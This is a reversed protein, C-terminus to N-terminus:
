RMRKHLTITGTRNEHTYEVRDMMKMVLFIGLGGEKRMELPLETDVNPADAVPDFRPTDRDTVEIVLEGDDVGLGVSIGGRGRANHRVFNTFVEEIALEVPFRVKPNAATKAFFTDVLEMLEPLADVSRAVEATMMQPATM